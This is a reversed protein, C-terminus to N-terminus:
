QRFPLSRGCQASAQRRARDAMVSHIDFLDLVSPLAPPLSPLWRALPSGEILVLDPQWPLWRQIAADMATGDMVNAFWPLEDDYTLREYARRSREGDAGIMDRYTESWEWPVAEVRVPYPPPEHPEGYTFAALVLEHEPALAELLRYTRILGGGMPPFPVGMALTLIRV